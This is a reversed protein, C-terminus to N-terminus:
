VDTYPRFNTSLQGKFICWHVISENDVEPSLLLYNGWLQSDTRHIAICLFQVTHQLIPIIHIRLYTGM